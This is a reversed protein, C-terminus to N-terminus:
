WSNFHSLPNCKGSRSLNIATTIGSGFFPFSLLEKHSEMQVEGATLNNRAMM